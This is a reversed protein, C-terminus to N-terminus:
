AMRMIAPNSIRLSGYKFGLRSLSITQVRMVNIGWAKARTRVIATLDDDVDGAIEEWTLGSLLDHVAGAGADSLVTIAEEIELLFRKPHTIKWLIVVEALIHEGDRTVIAQPPLDSTTPVVNCLLVGEIGLPYRWNWGPEAMRSFKGLRLIVGREYPKLIEWCILWEYVNLVLQVLAQVFSM